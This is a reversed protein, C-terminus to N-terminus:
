FHGLVAKFTTQSPTTQKNTPNNLTPNKKYSLDPLKPCAFPRGINYKEKCFHTGMQLVAPLRKQLQM